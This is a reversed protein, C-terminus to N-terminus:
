VRNNRYILREDLIKATYREAEGEALLRKSEIAVIKKILRGGDDKEVL